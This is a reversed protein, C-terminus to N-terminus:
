SDNSDNEKKIQNVLEQHVPCNDQQLHAVISSLNEDSQNQSLKAIADIHTPFLWFGTIGKIDEELIDNPIDEYYLPNEQVSEFKSILKQLSERLEDEQQLKVRASVHVASYDWTSIDPKTYWSSSIYAHAGQFILLVEKDDKLWERQPNHNAIHGFLCFADKPGKALVPIHTALLRDGQLVLTAFPHEQIFSFIFEPDKKEYQSPKYM